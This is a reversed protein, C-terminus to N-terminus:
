QNRLEDICRQIANKDQSSADQKMMELKSIMQDTATHRSYGSDYHNMNSRMNTRDYSGRHSAGDQYYPQIYYGRYSGEDEYGMKMEKESIDMIDKIIDVVINAVQLSTTTLEGQNNIKRVEDCLREKLHDLEKM